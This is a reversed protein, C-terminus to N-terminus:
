GRGVTYADGLVRLAKALQLSGHQGHMEGGAGRACGFGWLQLSSHSHVEEEV